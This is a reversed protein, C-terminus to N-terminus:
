AKLLYAAYALTNNGVHMGIPMSLDGTCEKALGFMLGMITTAVVQPLFVLPNCLFLIANTFHLLGFIVSAMLVSLVRAVLSSLYSSCGFREFLSTFRSTFFGQLNGRFVKEEAIPGIVCLLPFLAIKWIFHYGSFSLTPLTSRGLSKLVKGTLPVYVMPMLVSLGLGLSLQSGSYQLLGKQCHAPRQQPCAVVGM